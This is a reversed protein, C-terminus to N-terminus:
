GISKNEELTQKILQKIDILKTAFLCDEIDGESNGDTYEYPPHGKQYFDRWITVEKRM